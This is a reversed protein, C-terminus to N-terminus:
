FWVFMCMILVVKQKTIDCRILKLSSNAM